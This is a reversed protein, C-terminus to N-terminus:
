DATTRNEIVHQEPDFGEIPVDDPYGTLAARPILGVLETSTPAVGFEQGATRVAEVVAGLPISIPDHVNMSVQGREDGLILGMARVGRPGGQSERLKGAIAKVTQLEGSDVMVNFAALPPRATVLTGGATPHPRAPGFDPPLAGSAMREALDEITGQRYFAREARDPDSALAGYLFTPIGLESALHEAVSRAEAEAAERDGESLWVIPCVDLVGIAPHLGEHVRMDIGDLAAQAGALLAKEPEGRSGALTFVTRNHDVDIHSDLVRAGSALGREIADITEGRRGESFNPASLLMSELM